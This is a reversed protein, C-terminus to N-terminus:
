KQSIGTSVNNESFVLVKKSLVNCLLYILKLTQHPASCIKQVPIMLGTYTTGDTLSIFM